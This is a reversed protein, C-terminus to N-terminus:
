IKPLFQGYELSIITNQLYVYFVFIPWLKLFNSSIFFTLELFQEGVSQDFIQIIKVGGFYFSSLRVLM